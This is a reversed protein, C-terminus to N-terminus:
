SRMLASIRALHHDDHEAVFILHDILRMPTKLRPHLATKTFAAAEMGDLRRVLEMRAARFGSLIQELPADNHGAQHTKRNTLDATRLADAGAVFDDVRGAWLPELDLLHGANEQISWAGATKRTLVLRPLPRLREELRSPTGRLREVLNPFIGQPADFTFVREFWPIPEAM